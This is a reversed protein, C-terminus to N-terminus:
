LAYAIPIAGLTQLSIVRKLNFCLAEILMHFQNKVVGRYRCRQSLFTFVREYPARLKSFWRDRRKDKDRMNNRKIAANHCARQAMIEGASAGCYGKDAYVSSQRPCVRALAQGDPVNAPTVAIKKIMGSQMDVSVHKKYGHWYKKKGKCGIRAQKDVAVQPLVENNLRDYKKAIAKDREEWLQNKAVLHSSDVFTFLNKLHGDGALSKNVQQFCKSLRSTGIRKRFKGFLTFSPSKASLGLGCFWKAANNEQLYRELERDSLDETFQLLLACFLTTLGYGNPGLHSTLDREMPKLLKNFDVLARLKRYYHDSSVLQDLSVMEVQHVM